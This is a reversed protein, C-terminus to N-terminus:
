RWSLPAPLIQQFLKISHRSLYKRRERTSLYSCGSVAQESSEFPRSLRNSARRLHTIAYSCKIKFYAGSNMGPFALPDAIIKRTNGDIDARAYTALSSATLNHYGSRDFIKQYAGVRLKLVPTRM